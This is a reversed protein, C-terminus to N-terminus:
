SKMFEIITNVQARAFQDIIEDEMLLRADDYNDFFLHEILIAPMTTKVLLHFRAEKDHDGDSWRDSRMEITRGLNREVQHYLSEAYHDSATPGPSTWVEFGRAQRSPSANAHSSILLCDYLKGIANAWTSRLSLRYDYWSHHLLFYPLRLASLMEAVRGVLRRNWVGEYFWGEQHFDGFTHKYQKDPSTTYHGTKPSLGGHGADLIVLKAKM